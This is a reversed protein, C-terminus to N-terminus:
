GGRQERALRWYMAIDNPLSIPDFPKVIIGTVAHEMLAALEDPMSKATMLIVPLDRVTPLRRLEALLEPGSMVPMMVDLLLLEPAFAEVRQLAEAAGGCCCVEYGGVEGLSFALLERIDPDDEVSLIRRLASM